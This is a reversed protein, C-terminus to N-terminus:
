NLISLIQTRNQMNLTGWDKRKRKVKNEAKFNSLKSVTIQTYYRLTSTSQSHENPENLQNFHWFRLKRDANIGFIGSQKTCGLRM